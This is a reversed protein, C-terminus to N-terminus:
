GRRLVPSQNPDDCWWNCCTGNGWNCDGEPYGWPSGEADFSCSAIAPHTGLVLLAAFLTSQILVFKM